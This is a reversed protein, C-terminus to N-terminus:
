SSEQAAIDALSIVDWVPSVSDHILVHLGVSDYHLVRSVNWM